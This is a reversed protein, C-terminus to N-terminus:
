ARFNCCSKTALAWLTIIGSRAKIYRLRLRHLLLRLKGEEPVEGPTCVPLLLALQMAGPLLGTLGLLWLGRWSWLQGLVLLATGIATLAVPCFFRALTDPGFPKKSLKM